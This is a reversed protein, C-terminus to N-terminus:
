TTTSGLCRCPRPRRMGNASISKEVESSNSPHLEVPELGKIVCFFRYEQGTRTAARRIDSTLRQELGVGAQHVHDSIYRLGHGIVRDWLTFHFNSTVVADLCGISFDACDSTQHDILSAALHRAYEKVFMVQPYVPVGGKREFFNRRYGVSSTHLDCLAFLLLDGTPNSWCERWARASAKRSRNVLSVLLSGDPRHAVGIHIAETAADLVITPCQIDLAFAHPSNTRDIHRHEFPNSSSRSIATHAATAAFVEPRRARSYRCLNRAYTWKTSLSSQRFRRYRSPTRSRQRGRRSDRGVSHCRTGSAAPEHIRAVGSAEATLNISAKSPIM